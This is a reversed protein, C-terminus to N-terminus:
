FVGAGNHGMQTNVNHFGAAPGALISAASPPTYTTSIFVGSIYKEINQTSQSGFPATAYDIVSGVTAGGNIKYRPVDTLSGINEIVANSATATNFNIIQSAHKLIVLNYRQTATLNNNGSASVNTQIDTIHHHIFSGGSYGNPDLQLDFISNLVSESVGSYIITNNGRIQYSAPTATSLKSVIKILNNNFTVPNASAGLM